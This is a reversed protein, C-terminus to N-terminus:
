LTEVIEIPKGRFCMRLHARLREPIYGHAWVLDLDLGHLLREESSTFFLLRSGNTLELTRMARYHRQVHNRLNELIPDFMGIDVYRQAPGVLAIVSRKDLARKCVLEIAEHESIVPDLPYVRMYTTYEGTPVHKALADFTDAEVIGNEHILVYRAKPVNM